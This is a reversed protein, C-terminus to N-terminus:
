ALPRFVQVRVDLSEVGAQVARPRGHFANPGMAILDAVQGGELVLRRRVRHTAVQEFFESAAQALRGAKDAPIDLLGYRERLGALHGPEPTAVVLRGGPRLARAIDPLNRPAFVAVVADLCQDRVPLGRWVDAVVAAIRPDARSAVRAAARSVDLAVGQSTPDEGLCRRLYYATGAGVELLRQCGAVQAAVVAAVDGFLGAQLVRGRAALMDPTDANAPEPAGSLNVFGQRAVDFSHGAPCRVTPPTIALPQRCHPCALIGSAADLGM